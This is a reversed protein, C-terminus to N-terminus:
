PKPLKLPTKQHKRCIIKRMRNKNFAVTVATAPTGASPAQTGAATPMGVTAPTGETAIWLM